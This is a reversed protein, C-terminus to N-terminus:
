EFSACVSRISATSVRSLGLVLDRRERRGGLGRRKLKRDVVDGAVLERRDDGLEVRECVLEAAGDLLLRHAVAAV